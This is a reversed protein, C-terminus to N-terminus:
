RGEVASIYIYTGVIRAGLTSIKNTLHSKSVRINGKSQVSIKVRGTKLWEM